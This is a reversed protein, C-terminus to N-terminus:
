CMIVLYAWGLAHGEQIRFILLFVTARCEALFLVSGEKDLMFGPIQREGASADGTPTICLAGFLAYKLM